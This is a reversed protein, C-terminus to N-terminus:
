IKRRSRTQNKILNEYRKLWSKSSACNKITNQKYITEIIFSQTFDRKLSFNNEQIKIKNKFLYFAAVYLSFVIIPVITLIPSLIWITALALLFFPIDLILLTAPNIILQKISNFDKFKAFQANVSANEVM